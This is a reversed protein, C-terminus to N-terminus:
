TLACFWKFPFAYIKAKEEIMDAETQDMSRMFIETIPIIGDVAM